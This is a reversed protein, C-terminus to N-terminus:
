TGYRFAPIGGELYSASPRRRLRTMREVL